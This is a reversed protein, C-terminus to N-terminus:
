RESKFHKEEIKEIDSVLKQFLYDIEQWDEDSIGNLGYRNYFILRSKFSEVRSIISSFLRERLFTKVNKDTDFWNERFM